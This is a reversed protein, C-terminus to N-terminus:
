TNVLATILLAYVITLIMAINARTGLPLRLMPVVIAPIAVSGAVLQSVQGV